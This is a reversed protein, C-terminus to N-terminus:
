NKPMKKRKAPTHSRTCAKDQRKANPTDPWVFAEKSILDRAPTEAARLIRQTLGPVGNLYLTEQIADWDEQSILYAATRRGVIQVPTHTTAADDILKYLQKRAETITLPTM